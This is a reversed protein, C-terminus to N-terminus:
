LRTGGIKPGRPPYYGTDGVLPVPNAEFHPGVGLCILFSFPKRLSGLGWWFHTGEMQQLIHQGRNIKFPFGDGISM